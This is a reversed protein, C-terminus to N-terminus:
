CKEQVEIYINLMKRMEDIGYLKIEDSFGDIFEILEKIKSSQELQQKTISKLLTRTNFFLLNKNLIHQKFKWFYEGGENFILLPMTNCLTNIMSQYSIIFKKREPDSENRILFTIFNKFIGIFENIKKSSM